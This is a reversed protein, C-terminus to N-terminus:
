NVKAVDTEGETQPTKDETFTVTLGYQKLLAEDRQIEAFLDAVDMGRDAAIQTYSTQRTRIAEANAKVESAPDIWPWGRGRFKADGVITKIRTPPITSGASLAHMIAWRKFIAKMATRIFFGQMGKYFARDEMLVSRGTSYSVGATEMGLSFTSIGLSMALEKKLQAEFQAYDTTSGGPDFKDFKMGDPMQKLTGPELNMTFFDEGTEEDTQKQDALAQIGEDKPLERSFFGMMASAIRRNTIEAERYGDQMKITNLCAAAPPEGRTQGPRLREYVHVINEATVRRHRPKNYHLAWADDGPHTTLIHYAVARGFDDIEVGMKIQNKTFPNISNITEDVMDAELPNLSIMDPYETNIVVEFFFEGDRCWSAVMQRCFDVMSMQGDVTPAECWDSWAKEVRENGAQFAFGNEGVVNDKMLQMFRKMVGSNRALFRAKQRLVTLSHMLEYDASGASSKFDGYRATNQAASYGKIKAM